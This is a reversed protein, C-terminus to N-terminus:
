FLVRLIWPRDLERRCTLLQAEYANAREQVNGAVRLLQENGAYSRRQWGGNGEHYALYLNYADNKAIGSISNSNNNYWGIFDIADSFSTRRAGWGGADAKYEAWTSDLAQAYGFANSPRFWPIFGFLYRRPPRARQVFSSEQYVFAMNVPIPVGWRREAKKAARYWGHRDEFMACVNGPNDPVSACASLLLLLSIVIPRRASRM